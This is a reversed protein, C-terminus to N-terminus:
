KLIGKVIIDVAEDPALGRSMLTEMQKKDVSGISAEHTVKALPNTVEVLPVARAVARDKVIEMCDVHGRAYPANGKTTGRVEARGDDEVAIRTKILGRANAGDLSISEAIVINDNGHGFVRATLETVSGEDARVDYDIMLRGVRGTTLTFDARYSANKGLRIVAKPIVKIGGFPGHYHTEFYQLSASEGITVKADMEHLIDEANPFICHAILVASSSKSLRIDMRIRQAGTKHVVGFCVHVPNQLRVGEEIAVKIDIWEQGEDVTVSMGDVQRSSEVHHGIAVIHAINPDGLVASDGGTKEFSNLLSELESM